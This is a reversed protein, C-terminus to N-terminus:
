KSHAPIGRVSQNAPDFEFAEARTGFPEVDYYRTVWARREKFDFCAEVDSGDARKVAYWGGDRLLGLTRADNLNVWDDM